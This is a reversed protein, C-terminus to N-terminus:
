LFDADRAAEVLDPVAIVNEPLKYGALYKVNEHQTNIIETLKQGNVMEEYVWMPVRRDFKSNQAVNNGVMKAIVSGWNGSGVICVRKPSAMSSLLFKTGFSRFFSFTLLLMFHPSILSFTGSKRSFTLPIVVHGQGGM